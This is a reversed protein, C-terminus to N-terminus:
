TLCHPDPIEAIMTRGADDKLALHYDQDGTARCERKYDTITAEIVWLTAEPPGLRANGLHAPAEL